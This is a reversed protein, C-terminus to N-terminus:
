GNGFVLVSICSSDQTSPDGRDFCFINFQSNGKFPTKGSSGGTILNDDGGAYSTGPAVGASGSWAYNADALPTGFVVTYCGTATRVITSVNFSAFIAGTRGDFNVWAKAVSAGLNLFTSALTKWNNGDTVANGQNNDTKSVYCVGAVQVWSGIFYITSTDWEALGSQFLYALQRTVLFKIANDDQFAPSSNGGPANILAPAWGAGYAPLAQIVDPDSSYQPSLAALSGFQAVVDTPSVNGAFIKQNKRTIKAM